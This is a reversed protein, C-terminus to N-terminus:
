KRLERPILTGASLEQAISVAMQAALESVITSSTPCPLGFRSRREGMGNGSSGIKVAAELLLDSLCDIARKHIDPTVHFSEKVAPKKKTAM